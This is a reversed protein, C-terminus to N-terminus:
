GPKVVVLRAELRSRAAELPQAGDPAPRYRCLDVSRALLRRMDWLGGIRDRLQWLLHIVAPSTATV